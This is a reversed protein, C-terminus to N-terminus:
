PVYFWDAELLPYTERLAVVVSFEADTIYPHEMDELMQVRSNSTTLRRLDRIFYPYPVNVNGYMGVETIVDTGDAFINTFEEKSYECKSTVRVRDGVKFKM